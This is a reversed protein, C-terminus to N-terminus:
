TTLIFRNFGWIRWISTASCEFATPPQSFSSVTEYQMAFRVQRVSVLWHAQVLSTCLPLKLVAEIKLSALFLAIAIFIKGGRLIM